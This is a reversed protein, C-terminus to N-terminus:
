VLGPERLQMTINTPSLLRQEWLRLSLSAFVFEHLQSQFGINDNTTSM